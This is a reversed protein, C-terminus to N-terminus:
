PEEAESPKSNLPNDRSSSGGAAETQADMHLDPHQTAYGSTLRVASRHDSLAQMGAETILYMFPNKRGGTGTRTM